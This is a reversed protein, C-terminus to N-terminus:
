PSAETRGPMPAHSRQRRAADIEAGRGTIRLWWAYPGGRKSGDVLTEFADADRAISLASLEIRGREMAAECCRHWSRADAPADPGSPADIARLRLLVEPRKSSWFPYEISLAAARMTPHAALVLAAGPRISIPERPDTFRGQPTIAGLARPDHGLRRSFERLLTRVSAPDDPDIGFVGVRRFIAFRELERSEMTGIVSRDGFARRRLFAVILPDWWSPHNLLLLIPGAHARLAELDGRSGRELRVAHFSKRLLREAIWAFVRGIRPDFSDVSM